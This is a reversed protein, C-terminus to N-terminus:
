KRKEWVKLIAKGLYKSFYKRKNNYKIRNFYNSLDDNQYDLVDNFKKSDTTLPSYYNKELFLLSFIMKYSLANCKILNKILDKYLVNFNDNGSGNIIEKNFKNKNELVKVFLYGADEKTITSINSNLNINYIFNEKKLKSLVLPLRVITYNEIKSQIINESKIKYKLYYNKSNVVVKSKASCEKLKDGYVGTTSAYIFHCDPNYYNIARVLNETVNLETVKALEENISTIPPLVTSLHIIIDHEKVLEEVLTQDTLDGYFIKVRSKYTNFFEKSKLNPLDIVSIEYKGETLLNKLTESGVIGAAGTILVKKM